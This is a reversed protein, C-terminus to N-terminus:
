GMKLGEELIPIIESHLWFREIKLGVNGPLRKPLLQTKM